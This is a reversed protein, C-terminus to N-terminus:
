VYINKFKEDSQLHISFLKWQLLFHAGQFFMEETLFFHLIM